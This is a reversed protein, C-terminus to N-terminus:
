APDASRQLRMGHALERAVIIRDSGDRGRRPTACDADHPNGPVAKRGKHLRQQPLRQSRALRM